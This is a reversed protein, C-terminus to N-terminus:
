RRPPNGSSPIAHEGAPTTDPSPAPLSVGASSAPTEPSGSATDEEPRARRAWGPIFRDDTLALGAIGLFSGGAAALWGLASPIELAFFDRTFPVILVAVYAGALALCLTSVWAGRKPTTAELALILYLGVVIVVTTAVTRAETLPDGLVELTFSYSSLVGLGVATGAPVAFRMVERVFGKVEFSGVSPALALFFGPIGITLSAALTLHRPLLPYATPTLGISAVLFVAFASKTVFLKAVRTLNRLVKRGEVVMAPVSAFDGSVLVLDAVSRAMQSGSGQAIALRSTKLAPVDNVGDGLMAVYRGASALAQVVSRKGEPSIRGIVSAHALAEGLATPDDPLSRGDLPPGREPIGAERAIAAVTEPRDGSLVLLGVGQSQFYAVTERTHPRLQEGIVVVGLLRLDEPPPQTDSVEGLEASTSGVAVVRRGQAADSEVREKLEGLPFLEPAGVVYVDGGLRLASWRRSSAFPVEAVPAETRAPFATKISELTSTRSAASAAYRAFARELEEQTVGAAPVTGLVKPEPETLTGTKDTCVIDVSALSELANLQQALAGRRAMRLAAVAFTVSTLLILGEPVLTVVAAVATTVAESIPEKRHWLAYGLLLGVPIMVGVLAFLLNNLARELPSRPHRFSRAEGTIKFAYSEAGVANVEYEGLGEAVFSGSRVEQGPQADVPRSEGTLISEDLALGNSRVVTGDAVIQDGAQARVLDGVVLDDVAAQRPTGDRVVTASPAVLAALRDLARKARVEQGIGIVANALLIGLFLADQPKGYILTLAGFVALILNFVTFVNARVISWYSRSTAPKEIAGRQARRRSAEAESLGKGPLTPSESAAVPTSAV